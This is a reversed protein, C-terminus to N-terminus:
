STWDRMSRSSTSRWSACRPSRCSTARHFHLRENATEKRIERVAAEGKAADRGHLLVTAGQAALERSFERGLGDTAGTVLIVQQDIPRM